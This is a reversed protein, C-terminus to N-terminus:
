VLNVTANGPQAVQLLLTPRWRSSSRFIGALSELAWDTGGQVDSRINPVTMRWAQLNDFATRSIPRAQRISKGQDLQFRALLM